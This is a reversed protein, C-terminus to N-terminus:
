FAVNFVRMSLLSHQRAIREIWLSLAIWCTAVQWPAM